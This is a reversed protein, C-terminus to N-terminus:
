QHRAYGRAPVSAVIRFRRLPVSLRCGISEWRKEGASKQDRHHHLSNKPGAHQVPEGGASAIAIEPEQKNTECDCLCM